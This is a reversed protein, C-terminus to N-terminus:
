RHPTYKSVWSKIQISAHMRIELGVIIITECVSMRPADRTSDQTLAVRSSVWRWAGSKRICGVDSLEWGAVVPWAGDDDEVGDKEEAASSIGRSAALRDLVTDLKEVVFKAGSQADENWADVERDGDRGREIEDGYRGERSSGVRM